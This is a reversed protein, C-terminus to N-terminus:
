ILYNVIIKEDNYIMKQGCQRHLSVDNAYNNMLYIQFSKIRIM